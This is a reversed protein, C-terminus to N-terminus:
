EELELKFGFGWVSTIRVNTQILKKRLRKLVDDCAKTDVNFDFEWVERLLEERSISRNSNEFMYVLLKFETPTVDFNEGNLTCKRYAIDIELNGYSLTNKEILQDNFSMRRFIAQVRVVLEMPAFPKVLYDDAGMSIGNIRDLESDKASVIIIPVNNKKRIASCITVGDTGPMMVDLIVMDSPTKEFAEKLADGTEFSTVEYGSNRLFTSIINRVDKDDDAIYIKM